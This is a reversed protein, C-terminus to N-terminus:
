YMRGSREQLNVQSLPKVSHLKAIMYNRYSIIHFLIKAKIFIYVRTLREYKRKKGNKETDLGRRKVSDEESKTRYFRYAAESSIFCKASIL